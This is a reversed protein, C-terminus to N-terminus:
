SIGLLTKTYKLEDNATRKVDNITSRYQFKLNTYTEKDAQNNTYKSIEYLFNLHEKMQKLNDNFWNVKVLKKPSRFKKKINLTGDM